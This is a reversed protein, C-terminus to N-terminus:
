TGDWGRWLTGVAELAWFFREWEVLCAGLGRWLTGFAELARVREALCAALGRWLTEFVELAKPCREWKQLFEDLCGEPTVYVEPARIFREWGASCADM